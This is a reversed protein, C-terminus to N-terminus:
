IINKPRDTLGCLDLLYNVHLAAEEERDFRKQGLTKGNIRISARWKNRSSDYGVNHYKSAKSLKMGKTPNNYIKLGTRLAHLRNESITSWELNAVSNDGKDGNIHNVESKGLPNSILTKAVLRHLLHNSRVGGKTLKLCHYGSNNVYTKLVKRGNSVLGRPSISYLGEFEPLEVFDNNLVPNDKQSILLPVIYGKYIEWTFPTGQKSLKRYSIVKTFGM